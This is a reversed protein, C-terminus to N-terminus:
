LSRLQQFITDAQSEEYKLLSRMHNWFQRAELISIDPKTVLFHVGANRVELFEINQILDDIIAASEATRGYGAKLKYLKPGLPGKLNPSVSRILLDLAKGTVAVCGNPSQAKSLCREAEALLDTIPRFSLLSHLFESLAKRDDRDLGEILTRRDSDELSLYDSALREIKREEYQPDTRASSDRVEDFPRIEKLSNRRKKM